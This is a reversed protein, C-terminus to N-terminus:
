YTYAQIANDAPRFTYYRLWGNGGNARDQYDSLLELVPSGCSNTDTRRAESLEGNHFHGNVVMFISCNTSILKQWLQQPSNGVGDTRNMQASLNGFYDVYSHTAVIARRSPFAALVKKAWDIVYDPTNFELDLLLFDM